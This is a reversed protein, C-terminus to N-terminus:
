SSLSKIELGRLIIPYQQIMMSTLEFAIKGKLDHTNIMKVSNFVSNDVAVIQM